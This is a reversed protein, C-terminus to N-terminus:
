YMMTKIASTVVRGRGGWGRRADAGDIIIVVVRLVWGALGRGRHAGASSASLARHFEFYGILQVVLLLEPITHLGVDRAAEIKQISFPEMCFDVVDDGSPALRM